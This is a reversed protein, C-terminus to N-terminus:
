RRGMGHRGSPAPTHKATVPHSATSEIPRAARKSRIPQARRNPRSLPTHQTGGTGGPDFQPDFGIRDLRPASEIRFRFPDFQISHISDSDACMM